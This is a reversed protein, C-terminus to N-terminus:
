DEDEYLGDLFAEFSPAAYEVALTEHDIFVVSDDKPDFSITDGFPSSAFAVYQRMVADTEGDTMDWCRGFKWISEIDDPNFSYLAGFAQGKSERTDFADPEAYAGNNERVCRRFAEPFRYGIDKGYADILREDKLPKALIWKSGKGWISYGGTHGTKKHIDSDVLHM